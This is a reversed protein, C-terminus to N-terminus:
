KMWDRYVEKFNDSLEFRVNNHWFKFNIVHFLEGKFLVKEENTLNHRLILTLPRPILRSFYKLYVNNVYEYYTEYKEFILFDVPLLKEVRHDM